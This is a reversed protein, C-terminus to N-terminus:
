KKYVMLVSNFLVEYISDYVYLEFQKFYKTTYKNLINLLFYTNM